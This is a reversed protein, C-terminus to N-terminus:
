KTRIPAFYISIKPPENTSTITYTAKAGSDTKAISVSVYVRQGHERRYFSYTIQNGVADMGFNSDKNTIDEMSFPVGVWEALKQALNEMQNTDEKSRTDALKQISRYNADFDVEGDHMILQPRDSSILTELGKRSQAAASASILELAIIGPVIYKGRM